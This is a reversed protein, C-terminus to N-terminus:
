VVPEGESRRRRATWVAGILMPAFLAATSPLPVPVLRGETITGATTFLIDDDGSITLLNGDYLSFEVSVSQLEPGDLTTITTSQFNLLGTTGALEDEIFAFGSFSYLDGSPIDVVATLALASWPGMTNQSYHYSESGDASTLVIEMDQYAFGSSGTDTLIATGGFADPIEAAWGGTITGGALHGSELTGRYEWEYLVAQAPQAFVAAAAFALAASLVSLRKSM